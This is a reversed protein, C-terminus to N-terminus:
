PHSLSFSCNRPVRWALTRLRKLNPPLSLYSRWDEMVIKLDHIKTRLGICCNAHM